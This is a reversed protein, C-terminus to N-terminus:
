LKITFYLTQMSSGCAEFSYICNDAVNILTSMEFIVQSIRKEWGMRSLGASALVVAAFIDGNDLKDLRTNINGRISEVKLDPYRRNLQATRRM